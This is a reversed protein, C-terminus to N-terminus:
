GGGVAGVLWAALVPFEVLRGMFWRALAPRRMGWQLWRSARWVRRFARRRVRDYDVLARLDQTQLFRHAYRGALEAGRLALEVGQGTMPDVTGAADGVLLVGPAWARRVAFGLPSVCVFPSMPRADRMLHRLVPLEACARAFAVSPDRAERMIGTPLAAVVNGRGRGYLAAGVYWGPGVHLDGRPTQAAIGEFYAGVTTRPHLPLQGRHVTRAVVSHLGDAGIVLRARLRLTRAKSRAVVQPTRGPIVADVRFGELLEAGARVAEQVLLHDLRIRPILVGWGTPFPAWVSGGDPGSLLIGHIRVGAVEVQPGLGLRELARVAGPNLYEGCPKRRPFSARDLLVVRWGLRSLRIAASSGAPGAGVVAVDADM